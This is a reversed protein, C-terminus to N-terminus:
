GARKKQSLAHDPPVGGSRGHCAVSYQMGELEPPFSEFVVPALYRVADPDKRYCVMRDAGGSGAGTLSYWSEVTKIYPNSMLFHKLITTSDGDGMRRSAIYTYQAIPLLITFLAISPITYLIGTVGTIPGVLWHRRHAVIALAFAIVFGLAVSVLVLELHKWLPSLYDTWHGAIWDPCFGNRSECTSTREHLVVAGLIM